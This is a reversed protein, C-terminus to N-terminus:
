ANTNRQKLLGIIEDILVLSRDRTRPKLTTLHKPIISLIRRMRRYPTDTSTGDVLLDDLKGGSALYVHLVGLMPRLVRRPIRHEEVWRATRLLIRPRDYLPGYMRGMKWASIEPVRPTLRRQRQYALFAHLCMYLRDDDLPVRPDAAIAQISADKYRHAARAKELDSDFINVFLHEGVELALELRHVEIRKRVFRIAKEVAKRSVVRRQVVHPLPSM